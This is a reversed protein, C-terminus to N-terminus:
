YEVGCEICYGRTHLLQEGGGHVITKSCYRKGRQRLNRQNFIFKSM